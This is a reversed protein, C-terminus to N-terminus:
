RAKLALRRKSLCCHSYNDRLLYNQIAQKGPATTGSVYLNGLLGYLSEYKLSSTLCLQGFKRRHDLVHRLWMHTNYTVNEPGYAVKYEKELMQFLAPLDHAEELHAFTKDDQDLSRYLFSHLAWVKAM